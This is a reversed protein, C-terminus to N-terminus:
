CIQVLLHMSDEGQGSPSCAPSDAMVRAHARGRKILPGTCDTPSAIVGRLVSLPFLHSVLSPHSRGCSSHEDCHESCQCCKLAFCPLTLCEHARRDSALAFGFQPATVAGAITTTMPRKTFLRQASGGMCVIAKGHAVNEIFPM